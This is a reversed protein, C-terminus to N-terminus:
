RKKMHPNSIRDLCDYYAQEQPNGAGGVWWWRRGYADWRAGVQAMCKGMPTNPPQSPDAKGKKAAAPAETMMFFAALAAGVVSISVYRLSM